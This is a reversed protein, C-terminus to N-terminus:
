PLGCLPSTSPTSAPTSRASAASHPTADTQEVIAMVENDQTRLIRGYGHPDSLTTTLM